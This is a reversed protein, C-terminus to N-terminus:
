RPRLRAMSCDHIRGMLVLSVLAGILATFMDWQTDWPDGQTALFAVAEDGSSVAVRWEILEYGASIALCICTVIFFLWKGRVLPSRRLLIERALIAPFFGQAFHGLRDYDNRVLGIHDDRLWNFLPVEAYTYHGGVMLVLSHLLIALYALDSLRFRTYTAAVIMLGILAPLVELFWTFYEKPHWASWALTVAFAALMARHRAPVDTV